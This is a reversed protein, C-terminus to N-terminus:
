LGPYKKIIKEREKKYQAKTYIGRDFDKSLLELEKVRKKTLSIIEKKTFKPQNKKRQEDFFKKSKKKLLEKFEDSKKRKESGKEYTGEPALPMEETNPIPEMDHLMGFDSIEEDSDLRFEIIYNSVNPNFPHDNKHLLVATWIFVGSKGSPSDPTSSVIRINTLIDFWEQKHDPFDNAKFIPISGAPGGNVKVDMMSPVLEMLNDLDWFQIYKKMANWDISHISEDFPVKTTLDVENPPMHKFVKDAEKTITTKFLKYNPVKRLSPYVYESVYKRAENYSLKYGKRKLEKRTAAVVKNYRRIGLSSNSNRKPM